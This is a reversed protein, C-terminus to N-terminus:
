WEGFLEKSWKYIYIGILLCVLLTMYRGHM